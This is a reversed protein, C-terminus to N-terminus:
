GAKESNRFHRDLKDLLALGVAPNGREAMTRFQLMLDHQTLAVTKLEDLLRNVSTNRSVALQKLRTHKADPIRLTVVSMM